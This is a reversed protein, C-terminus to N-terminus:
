TEPIKPAWKWKLLSGNDLLDNLMPEPCLLPNQLPPVRIPYKCPGGGRLLFLYTRQMINEWLIKHEVRNTLETSSQM